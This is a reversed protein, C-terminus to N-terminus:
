KAALQAPIEIGSAAAEELTHNALYIQTVLPAKVTRVAAGLAQQYCGKFNAVPELGVRNSRGCAIWAANEIRDYLKQADAPRSLDLGQTNVHLAVTVRYDKAAVGGALVTCVVAAVGAFVRAKVRIANTSM